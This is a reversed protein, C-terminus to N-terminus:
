DREWYGRRGYHRYVEIELLRSVWLSPGYEPSTAIAERSLDVVIASEAWSVREIWEPALLVKKGPLWNTTEIAIYRLAWGHDDVIFDDVHGIEGDAAHIRYGIVERVSRLNPDGASGPALAGPEAPFSWYAPWGYYSNMAIEQQRSVPMDADVGPSDQVQQRALNVPFRRYNWDPQGLAVPSILVRRSNLWEGTEVVLYRVCWLTDDFYFNYARGLEGDTAVIRYGFMEQVSRLM